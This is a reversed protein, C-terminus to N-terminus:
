LTEGRVSSIPTRVGRILRNKLEPLFGATKRRASLPVYILIINTILFPNLGGTQVAVIIFFQYTAIGPIPTEDDIGLPACGLLWVSGSGGWSASTGCVTPFQIDSESIHFEISTRSWPM